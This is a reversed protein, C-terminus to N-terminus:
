FPEHPRRLAWFPMLPGQLPLSPKLPGLFVEALHVLTHLNGGKCSAGLSVWSSGLGEWHQRKRLPEGLKTLARGLPMWPGGLQWSDAPLQCGHNLEFQLDHLTFELGSM